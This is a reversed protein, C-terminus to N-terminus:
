SSIPKIADIMPLFVNEYLRDREDVNSQLLFIITRSNSQAIAYDVLMGRVEATYLEWEMDNATRQTHSEPTQPVGFQIALQPLVSEPSAEAAQVMVLTADPASNQRSFVGPTVENWGAPRVGQLNLAEVTFAELTIEGSTPIDFRIAPMEDM